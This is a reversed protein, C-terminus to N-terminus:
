CKRRKRKMMRQYMLVMQAKCPDESFRFHNSQLSISGVGVKVRTHM